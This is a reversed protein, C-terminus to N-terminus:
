RTRRIDQIIGFGIASDDGFSVHQVKDIRIKTLKGPRNIRQLRRTWCERGDCTRGVKTVNYEFPNGTRLWVLKMRGRQKYIDGEVLDFHKKLLILPCILVNCGAPPKPSCGSEDASLIVDGYGGCFIVDVLDALPKWTEVGKSVALKRPCFDANDLIDAVEFGFIDSQSCRLKQLPANTSSYRRAVLKFVDGFKFDIAEDIQQTMLKRLTRQNNEVGDRFELLERNYVYHNDRLYGRVLSVILNILRCLYGTNRSDDYLIVQKSYLQDVLAFMNEEPGHRCRLDVLELKQTIGLQAAFPIGPAGVQIYGQVDIGSHSYRQQTQPLCSRPIPNPPDKSGLITLSSAWAGVYATGRLDNIGVHCVRQSPLLRIFDSRDSFWRFREDENPTVFHWQVSGDDFVATPILGTQFGCLVPTGGVEVIQDIGAIQVLVHFPIRLGKGVWGHSISGFYRPPYDEYRAINAGQILGLWCLNTLDPFKSIIEEQLTYSCNVIQPKAATANLLEFRRVRLASPTDHSVTSCLWKLCSLLCEWEVPTAEGALSMGTALSQLRLAVTRGQYFALMGEIPTIPQGAPGGRLVSTILDLLTLGLSGWYHQLIQGVSDVRVYDLPSHNSTLGICAISQAKINFKKTHQFTLTAGYQAAEHPAIVIINASGFVINAWHCYLIRRMSLKYQPDTPPAAMDTVEERSIQYHGVAIQALHDPIPTNLVVDAEQAAHKVISAFLTPKSLVAPATETLLRYAKSVTLNIMIQLIKTERNMDRVYLTQIVWSIALGIFMPSRVRYTSQSTTHILSM